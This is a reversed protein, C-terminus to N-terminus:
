EHKGLLEEKIEKLKMATMFDEKIVADKIRQEIEALSINDSYTAIKKNPAKGYHVKGNLLKNIFDKFHVYCYECGFEREAMATKLTTKCKPCEIVEAAGEARKNYTHYYNSFNGDSYLKLCDACVTKSYRKNNIIEVVENTAEKKKCLDCIM